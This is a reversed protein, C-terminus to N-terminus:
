CRSKELGLGETYPKRGVSVLVYDGEFTVEEGKKNKATVKV